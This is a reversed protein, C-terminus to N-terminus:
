TCRALTRARGFKQRARVRTGGSSATTFSSPRRRRLLPGSRLPVVRAPCAQKSPFDPGRAIRSTSWPRGFAVALAPGPRVIRARLSSNGASALTALPRKARRHVRRAARTRRNDHPGNCRSLVCLNQAVPTADSCRRNCQVRANKPFSLVARDASTAQAGRLERNFGGGWESLNQGTSM